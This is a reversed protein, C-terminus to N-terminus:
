RRSFRVPIAVWVPVPTYDIMAPKFRMARAVGIALGDIMDGGSSEQIKTEAVRGTETVLVLVVTRGSRQAQSNAASLVRSIEDRNALEPRCSESRGVQFRPASDLSVKVRAHLRAHISDPQIRHAVIDALAAATRDPLDSDIISSARRLNGASDTAISVLAYGRTARNTKWHGAVAAHLGASDLLAALAPPERDHIYCRQGEPAPRSSLLLTERQSNGATACSTAVALLFCAAVSLLRRLTEM